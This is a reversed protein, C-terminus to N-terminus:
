VAEKRMSQRKGYTASRWLWEVPGFQFHSLWWRSILIQFAFVIFAFLTYYVPGVQRDLAFGIGTFFIIGVISHMIYNSFAMKGVPQILKLLKEGVNTKAFLFILCIYAIALPAVGLAYAVTQKLGHENLDYYGPQEHLKAYFYNAPIGIIICAIAIRWLLKTNALILKYRENRGMLYGLVFMGLVKSIRSQFFLDNYRFFAGIVNLKINTWVNANHIADFFEQDSQINNVHADLQIAKQILFTAPANAWEFEMKLWYLLIPSLLLIVATIFLTKTPWNRMLLLVFGVLSYFLVIDGIWILILHALGLLAMILLRRIVFPLPKAGNSKTRSLQLAIGWGFLFSFISYFKGEVFMTELFDLQRDFSTFYKGSHNGHPDYFTFGKLNAIFIGLIAFGRLADMLWIRQQDRIPTLKPQM